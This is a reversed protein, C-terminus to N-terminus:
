ESKATFYGPNDSGGDIHAYDIDYHAYNYKTGSGGVLKECEFFLTHFKNQAALTTDFKESAYIKTLASCLDFMLFMDTVKSTDFNSLDLETLGTCDCFMMDMDTVNSTDFSLLNLSTITQCKYFMGTMKECNKTDFHSVDIVPVKECRAFM